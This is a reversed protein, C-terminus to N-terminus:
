RVPRPTPTVAPIRGPIPSRPLLPRLPPAGGRMGTFRITPLTVSAPTSAPTTPSPTGTRRGSFRIAPLTAVIPTVPAANTPSPTPASARRGTFKITPLTAVLQAHAVGAISLVVIVALAAGIPRRRVTV